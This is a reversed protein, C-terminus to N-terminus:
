HLPQEWNWSSIEASQLKAVKMASSSSPLFPPDGASGKRLLLKPCSIFASLKDPPTWNSINGQALIGHYAAILTTNQNYILAKM